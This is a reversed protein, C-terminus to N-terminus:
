LNEWIEVLRSWVKHISYLENVRKRANEGCRLAYEREDLMTQIADRLGSIDRPKVCIGNNFGNEIDLMEPIAGVDTTVIPCGCAMSELIVNPFGETYTPLVFVGCNLMQMLVEKYPLEGMIELDTKGEAKEMMIRRTQDNVSGVFKLTIDNINKCAEILEFIGKEKYCQGVFLVLRDNRQVFSSKIFDLNHQSIPNPISVTNNFGNENLTEYSTKDIVIAVDVKGIVYVLLRYEWNKKFFLEPIRGFRFHIIIKKDYFRAIQILIIDKFLGLSASSCIHVIDCEKKRLYKIENIIYQIYIYFGSLVRRIKNKNNFSKFLPAPEKLLEIRVDDQGKREWYNIIHETWRAIGGAKKYPSALLVKRM